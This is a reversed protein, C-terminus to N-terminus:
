FQSANLGRTGLNGNVQRILEISYGSGNFFNFIQDAKNYSTNPGFLHDKGYWNEGSAYRIEYSGSPVELELTQGGRIFYEGAVQGSSVSVLKIYYNSGFGTKISLPSNGNSFSSFVIGTDPLQLAPQNFVPPSKHNDNNEHKDSIYIYVVIVIVALLFIKNM